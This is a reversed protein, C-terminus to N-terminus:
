RPFIWDEPYDTPGDFIPLDTTTGLIKTDLIQVRSCEPCRAVAVDDSLLQVQAYAPIRESAADSKPVPADMDKAQLSRLLRLSMAGIRPERMPHRTTPMEGRALQEKARKSLYWVGDTAQVWGQSFAMLRVTFPEEVPQGDSYTMPPDLYAKRGELIVFGSEPLSLVQGFEGRCSIHTCLVRRRTKKDLRAYFIPLPSDIPM